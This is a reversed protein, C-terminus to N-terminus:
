ARTNKRATKSIHNEHMNKKQRFVNKDISLFTNTFESKRNQQSSAKLIELDTIDFSILNIVKAALFAVFNRNAM